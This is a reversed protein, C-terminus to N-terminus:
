HIHLDIKIGLEKTITDYEDFRRKLSDELINIVSQRAENKDSSDTSVKYFDKLYMPLNYENFYMLKSKSLSLSELLNKFGVSDVANTKCIQDKYRLLTLGITCAKSRVNYNLLLKMGLEVTASDSSSLFEKVSELDSSDPVDLMESIAKDLDTDIIFPKQMNEINMLSKYVAKSLSVPYGVFLVVCDSEIQDFAILHNLVDQETVKSKNFANLCKSSELEYKRIIYFNNTSKSYFVIFESYFTQNLGPESVIIADAKEPKLCRKIKTFESLKFRPFSCGPDFYVKKLKDLDFDTILNKQYLKKLNYPTDFATLATTTGNIYFLDKLLKNYTVSIIRYSDTIM